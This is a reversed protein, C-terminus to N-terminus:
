ALFGQWPFGPKGSVMFFPNKLEKKNYCLRQGKLDTVAGGAEEVICQAAATDWEMTPGFRPYLHAAGQAVLCLKLSSGMSLFEAKGIREIFRSLEAGGHSRSGVVKLVAGRYDSASIQVTTRDKDKFAGAGASAYYMVRLAPAYVVGMVPVNGAILAINVTFENNRKIFEKTGDLPDVLWFKKWPKRVEYPAPESEESLVPIGPSIRSLGHTIISHSAKDALTLPSGEEKFTTGFDASSYVEIVATGAKLALSKIENFLEGYGRGNTHKESAPM